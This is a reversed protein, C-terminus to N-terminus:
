LMSRLTRELWLYVRRSAPLRHLAHDKLKWLRVAVKLTFSSHLDALQTELAERARHLALMEKGLDRFTRQERVMLERQRRLQEDLARKDAEVAIARGLLAFFGEIQPQHLPELLARVQGPPESGIALLGIGGGHGLEFSPHAGRLENWLAEAAGGRTGLLLFVGRRSLKPKWAAFDRRLSALDGSGDHFVFDVDGDEYRAAAQDAREHARDVVNALTSLERERIAQTFATYSQSAEAGLEVLLRPRVADVLYMGFPIHQLFSSGPILRGIPSLWAPHEFPAFEPAAQFDRPPRLATTM